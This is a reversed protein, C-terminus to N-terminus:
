REVGGTLGEHLMAEFEANREFRKFITDPLAHLLVAGYKVVDADHVLVCVHSDTLDDVLQMFFTVIRM